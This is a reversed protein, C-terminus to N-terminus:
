ELGTFRVAYGNRVMTLTAPKVGRRRLPWKLGYANDMPQQVDPNPGPKCNGVVGRRRREEVIAQRSCGCALALLRASQGRLEDDTLARIRRNATPM